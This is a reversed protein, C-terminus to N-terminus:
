NKCEEPITITVPENISVMNIEIQQFSLQSTQVVDLQQVGNADEEIPALALGPVNVEGEIYFRVVYNGEKAIYVNGRAQNFQDFEENFASEDFIYHVTQIGNIKEESVLASEGVEELLKLAEQIGYGVDSMDFKDETTTTCEFTPVNLYVINDIQTLSVSEFGAVGEFGTVFLYSQFPATTVQYTAKIVQTKENFTTSIEMEMEYSELTDLKSVTDSISLTEPFTYSSLASEEDIAEQENNVPSSCAATTMGLLLLFLLLVRNMFQKM